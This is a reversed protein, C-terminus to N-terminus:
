NTSYGLNAIYINLFFFDIFYFNVDGIQSVTFEDHLLMCTQSNCGRFLMISFLPWGKAVSM